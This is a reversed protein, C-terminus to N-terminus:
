YSEIQLNLIFNEVVLKVMSAMMIEERNDTWSQQMEYVQSAVLRYVMDQDLKINTWDVPDELEVARAIEILQDLSLLM